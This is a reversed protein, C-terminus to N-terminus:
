LLHLTVTLRVTLGPYPSVSQRSAPEWWFKENLINDVNLNFRYRDWTYSAGANAATWAPIYFGVQEPVGLSTYGLNPSNEGAVRGEHNVGVFV